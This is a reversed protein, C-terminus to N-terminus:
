WLNAPVARCERRSPKRSIGREERHGAKKGGDCAVVRLMTASKADAEPRWFWVAEGDAVTREDAAGCADMADRLGVNTVIAFRGELPAPRGSDIFSHRGFRWASYEQSFSKSSRCILL